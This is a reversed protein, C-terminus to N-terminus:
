FSKDTNYKIIIEIHNHHLILLVINHKIKSLASLNSINEEAAYIYGSVYSLNPFHSLIDSLDSIYTKELGIVNDCIARNSFITESFIKKLGIITIKYKIIYKGIILAYLNYRDIRLGYNTFYWDRYKKNLLTVVEPELYEALLSLLEQPLKSFLRGFLIEEIKKQCLISLFELDTGM